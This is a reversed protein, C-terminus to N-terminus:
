HATKFKYKPNFKNYVAFELMSMGSRIEPMVMMHLLITCIFRTANLTFNGTFIAGKGQYTNYMKEPDFNFEGSERVVLLGLAVQLVSTFFCKLMLQNHWLPDHNNIFNLYALSYIDEQFDLVKDPDFGNNADENNKIYYM